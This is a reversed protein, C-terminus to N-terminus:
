ARWGSDDTDGYLYDDLGRVGTGDPDTDREDRGGPAVGEDLADAWADAQANTLRM